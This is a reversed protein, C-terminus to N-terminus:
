YVHNLDDTFNSIEIM